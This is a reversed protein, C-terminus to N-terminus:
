SVTVGTLLDNTYTYTTTTVISLYTNVTQTLAGNTYTFDTVSNGYQFVETSQTLLDLTYIYSASILRMEFGVWDATVGPESTTIDALNNILQWYLGDHFASSPVNLAGTLNVWAGKFNVASLSTAAFNASEVASNASDNAYGEADAVFGETEAIAVNMATITVNWDPSFQALYTYQAEAAAPFGIPDSRLAIPGAYVPALPINTAM